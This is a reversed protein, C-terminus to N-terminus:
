GRDQAFKLNKAACEAGHWGTKVLLRLIKIANDFRRQDLLANAVNFKLDARRSADVASANLLARRFNREALVPRGLEAYCNGLAHLADFDHKRFSLARRFADKADQFNGMKFCIDGVCYWAHNLDDRYETNINQTVPSILLGLASSLRNRRTLAYV